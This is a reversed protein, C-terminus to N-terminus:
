IVMAGREVGGADVLEGGGCGEVLGVGEVDFVMQFCAVLDEEAAFGLEGGAGSGGVERECGPDGIGDGFSDLYGWPVGRVGGSQGAVLFPVPTHPPIM